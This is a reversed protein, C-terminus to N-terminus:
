VLAGPRMRVIDAITKGTPKILLDDEISIANTKTTQRSIYREFIIMPGKNVESELYHNDQGPRIKECTIAHIRYNSQEM